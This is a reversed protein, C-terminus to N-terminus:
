NRTPSITAQEQLVSELTNTDIAGEAVLMEGLREKVEGPQRVAELEAVLFDIM